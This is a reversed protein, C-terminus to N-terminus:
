ESLMAFAYKEAAQLPTYTGSNYIKNIENIVEEAEQGQWFYGRIQVFPTNTNIEIDASLKGSLWSICTLKKM